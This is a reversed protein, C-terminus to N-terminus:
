RDAEGHYENGYYGRPRKWDARCRRASNQTTAHKSLVKVDKIEGVTTNTQFDPISKGEAGFVPATNKPLGLDDLVRAESAAGRAANETVLPVESSFIITSSVEPVLGGLSMTMDNANRMGEDQDPNAPQLYHLHGYNTGLAWNVGDAALNHLGIAVNGVSKAVGKIKDWLGRGDPDTYRLPNNRGYMYLNWTQPYESHQDAFPEDPSTFRGQASSMYRAGFYDLGTETDREKSTFQQKVGVDVAYGTVGYRPSGPSVPVTEGFPLYDLREMTGGTVLRTSGLHDATLYQTGSAVPAPGGYEAALDGSADYVYTTVTGDSGKKAVRRGDGDYTYVTNGSAWTSTCTTVSPCYATMRNEADFAYSGTIAGNAYATVNGANDYTWSTAGNAMRNTQQNIALPELMPPTLQSRASVTRNGFQGGYGYAECWSSGADPCAVQSPNAPATTPNETAIDLRNVADYSYYQTIAAASGPTIKQSWVNGNNVTCSVEPASGPCYSYALSLLPSGSQTATISYPQLRYPDYSTVEVVGNKLAMSQVAGHSAYGLSYAYASSTGGSPTGDLETVRNLNDYLWTEKRGSPFTMNTRANALNYTYSFGTSPIGGTNQTSGVINGLNDYQGYTTTSATSTVM